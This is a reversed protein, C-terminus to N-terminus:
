YINVLLQILFLYMKLPNVNIDLSIKQSKVQNRILKSVDQRIQEELRQSTKSVYM